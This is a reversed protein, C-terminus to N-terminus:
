KQALYEPAAMTLFIALYVKNGATNNPNSAIAALIQSRLSASMQGQLLLINIRDLLLDPTAALALEPTYDAKIERNTGTGASIANRMFDLYGFVSTEETIQMEPAFLNANILSTNPPQYEPRYFNFVSPSRMPTQSLSRLPDDTNPLLFKGSASSVHFARM